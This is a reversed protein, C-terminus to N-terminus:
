GSANQVTKLIYVRIASSLNTARNRDIETVLDNVSRGREAALTKLTAWFEPELSISTKHGAILVSHKM